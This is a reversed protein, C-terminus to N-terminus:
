MVLHAPQGFQDAMFLRAQQNRRTVRLRQRLGNLSEPRILGPTGLQAMCGLHYSAGAETWLAPDLRCQINVRLSQM